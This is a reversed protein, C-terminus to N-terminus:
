AMTDIDIVIAKHQGYVIISNDSYQLLSWRFVSVRGSAKLIASKSLNCTENFCQQETSFSLQTLLYTNDPQDIEYARSDCQKLYEKKFADKLEAVIYTKPENSM